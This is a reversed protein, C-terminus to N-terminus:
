NDHLTAKLNATKMGMTNEIDPNLQFINLYNCKMKLHLETIASLILKWENNSWM